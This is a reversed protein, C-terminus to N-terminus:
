QDIPEAVDSKIWAQENQPDIIMAVRSTGLDYEEYTERISGDVDDRAHPTM